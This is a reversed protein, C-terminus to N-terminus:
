QLLIEIAKELQADRTADYDEMSVLVDPTIGKKNIWDGKPLLWKGTTVHLSSGGKLEQPSQVSGKGFSIEGAIKARKYDQLAGAVIEAASASGKNILVVLPITLLKGTRDVNYDEKTGDSNTQTVVKGSKIFESAIFVAGDLYGGPNNRLDFILGKVEGGAVIDDVAKLWESNTRDGFRTLHIYAIKDVRTQLQAAEPMGSIEKIESVPKIWSIVSPIIIDDRVIAIDEPKDSKEHLINLIVSTNKPGRIKDVGQQITWGITDEDNVKLIWDSPRLGAKEAPSGTLPSVIILRSDKLGLEAGIGQFSGNIDEKFTKNEKPPLFTTYPDDLANVMGSVAGYLLKQADISAADIYYRHLRTWVEWFLNFDVTVTSPTERNVVSSVQPIGTASNRQGLRYSIGGVLVLVAIFLLSTRIKSFPLSKM